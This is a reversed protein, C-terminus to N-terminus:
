EKRWLRGNINTRLGETSSYEGHFRYEGNQELEYVEFGESIEALTNLFVWSILRNELIGRGCVTGMEENKLEVTFRNDEPISFCFTNFIAQNEGQKEVQQQARINGEIEKEIVWKTYFHLKEPSYNFSITGEGLWIGPEFIFLHRM